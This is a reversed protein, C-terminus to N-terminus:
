HFLDALQQIDAPTTGCCGGIIQAGDQKWSQAAQLYATEHLHEDSFHWGQNDDTVGDGQAYVGIPLDTLSRLHKVLRNAIAVSICNIGIFLPGFAEIQPVVESLPEGSLLQNHDNCCFSVAFPLAYQQAIRIGSLTERLTIMTEFLLFDVGGDKLDSILRNQERALEEPAPTLEPSYCDELPAVSGVVYVEHAPKTHVIAQHARECALLTMATAKEAIGKKAFARRTTRFTDTIIIEAGARIYDEHIHQVIEPHQLLVEASWLPLTTPIGRHLIETGMAGDMILTENNALRQKLHQIKQM